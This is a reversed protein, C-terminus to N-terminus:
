AASAARHALPLYEALRKRKIDDVSNLKL